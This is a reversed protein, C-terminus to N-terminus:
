GCGSRRSEPFGAPRNGEEENPLRASSSPPKGGSLRLCRFAGACERRISYHYFVTTNGSGWPSNKGCEHRFNGKDCLSPYYLYLSLLLLLLLSPGFFTVRREATLPCHHSFFVVRSAEM